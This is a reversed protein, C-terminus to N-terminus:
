KKVIMEPDLVHVLGTKSDYLAVSYKYTKASANAPIQAEKKAKAPVHFPTDPFPSDTGFDVTFAQETVCNWVVFERIKVVVRNPECVIQSGAKFSIKVEPM